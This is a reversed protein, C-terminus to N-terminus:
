EGPFRAFIDDVMRKVTESSSQDYVNNTAIGKWVTKKTQRDILHIVLAGEKYDYTDLDYGVFNNFTGYGYYYYPDYYPAVTTLGATYPYTAYVPDATAAVEMDTATNILVLLDPNDRDLEFGEQMLNTRVAEVIAQNVNEDNYREVEANTNPLYAFSNYNSLNTSDPNVTRVRPGCSFLLILISFILMTKLAKM